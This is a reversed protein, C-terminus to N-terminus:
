DYLSYEFLEAANEGLDIPGLDAVADSTTVLKPNTAVPKPAAKVQASALQANAPQVPAHPLKLVQGARITHRNRLSNWSVLESVSTKYQRAIRSLTDGRRVTHELDPSQASYRYKAPIQAMADVGVLDAPLRLEYGKPVLKKGNWIAPMLAPNYAKLTARSIGFANELAVVPVYENLTVVADSRPKLKHVPGFYQQYNQHVDSAALFAVYFNRSAFGFARGRYHRIIEEIDDTGLQRVARKMGGVGHNYATIALPWSGLENYNHRLLKAAAESALFPDRRSDVVHDVQMFRKGTGRTFQWMGAAGVHSNAKPNYSSEVHPLAALEVPVQQENLHTLIFEQWQGSRELGAAFRDSLGQQIRLRTAALRLEKNSVDAPWQALVKQEDESLGDRKGKALGKLLTKYHKITTDYLKRRERSSAGPPIDVTGYVVHLHRNDHIVGQQSSVGTFVFRWFGIEPELGPPRTLTDASLGFSTLCVFLLAGLRAVFRFRNKNHQYQM